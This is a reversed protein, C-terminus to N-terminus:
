KKNGNTIKSRTAYKVCTSVLLFLVIMFFLFSLTDLLKIILSESACTECATCNSTCPTSSVGFSTPANATSVPTYTQCSVYATADTYTNSLRPPEFYPNALALNEYALPYLVNVFVNNYLSMYTNYPNNTDSNFTLMAVDLINFFTSDECAFYGNRHLISVANGEFRSEIVLLSQRAPTVPLSPNLEVCVISFYCRFNALVLQSTGNVIFLTNSSVLNLNEFVVPNPSDTVNIVFIYLLQPNEITLYSFTQGRPRNGMVTVSQNIVPLTDNIGVVSQDCVWLILQMEMAATLAPGMKTYNLTNTISQVIYFPCAHATAALALLILFLM